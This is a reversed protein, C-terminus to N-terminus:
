RQCKNYRNVIPFRRGIGFAKKSIRIGPAAQKRKYESNKVMLIMDSVLSPDYSSKISKDFYISEDIISDVLPSVVEYDFPDTQNHRLEASPPKTLTGSPIIEYNSNSNIWNSLSYVQSKNLDNIVALSGCMDGYLTCYGLALETKNSTSLVLANKKNAISMLISGRIRAQLNEEALGPETEDFVVSLEDLFIKNIDQIPIVKFNIKLNSALIRADSVSHNSSFVSPMAVGIVNEKGLANVAICTTLASDIGGSIGIIAKKFGSKYFYDKLGLTLAMYLQRNESMKNILISGSTKNLNFILDDEVFSNAIAHVEGSSNIAFSQGDFVLEDQAGVLNCYLLPINYKKVKLKAIKIRDEIRNLSFPSASINIIISAGGEVLEKTVDMNYEDDWLDECIQVGLSISQQDKIMIFPNVSESSKFYRKEDFVDYTPLLYKDRFYIKKDPGIIAASNYLSNKQTRITGVIVTCEIISESIKLLGESVSKLFDPILLLDQPPYGIMAMEPFVIIDVNNQNKKIINVIKSVNHEIDGVTPNIQALHFKM